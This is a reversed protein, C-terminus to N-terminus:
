GSSGSLCHLPLRSHDRDMNNMIYQIHEEGKQSALENNFILRMNAVQKTSADLFIILLLNNICGHTKGGPINSLTSKWM